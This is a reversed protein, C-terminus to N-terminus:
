GQVLKAIFDRIGGFTVDLVYVIAAVIIVVIIVVVTNNVVQKGTPWVVKKAEGVLDKFWRGIRAFINRKKKAPKKAKDNKREEVAAEVTEEAASVTKEMESM